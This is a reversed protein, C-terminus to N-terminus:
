KLLATKKLIHKWYEGNLIRRITSQHVGYKEAIASIPIEPSIMLIQKVQTENLKASGNKSGKAQRGKRVMDKSNNLPTSLFLHEIKICAKNDCHHGIIMGKPIPGMHLEWHARHARYSKNKFKFTGYGDSTITGIWESCGNKKITNVAFVEDLNKYSKSCGCSKVSGFKLLGKPLYKLNGCDCRCKFYRQQNKSYAYEIVFLKGFKKNIITADDRRKIKSIVTNM